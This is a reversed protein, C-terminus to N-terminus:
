ACPGHVRGADPPQRLSSLEILHRQALRGGGLHRGLLDM